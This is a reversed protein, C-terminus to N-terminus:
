LRRRGCLALAGMGVLVLSAPEPVPEYRIAVADFPTYQAVTLDDSTVNSLSVILTSGTTIFTAFEGAINQFNKASGVSGAIGIHGLPDVEGNILITQDGGVIGSVTYPVDTVRNPSRVWTTFIEVETGAVLGTFEFTATHTAAGNTATQVKYTNNVGITESALWTGTETYGPDPSTLVSGSDILSIIPAGTAAVNISLMSGLLVSLGARNKKRNISMVVM